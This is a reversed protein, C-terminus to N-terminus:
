RSPAPLYGTTDTRLALRGVALCLAVALNVNGRRSAPDAGLNLLQRELVDLRGCHVIRGREYMAAVPEATAFNSRTKVVSVRCPVGASRLMGQFMEVGPGGPLIVESAGFHAALNAVRSAWAALSVSTDDASLVYVEAGKSGAVVIERCTGRYLGADAAIVVRDLGEGSNPESWRFDGAFFLPRDM